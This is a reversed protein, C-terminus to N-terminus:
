CKKINSFIIRVLRYYGQLQSLYSPYHKLYLVQKKGFKSKLATKVTERYFPEIHKDVLEQRLEDSVHINEHIGTIELEYEQDIASM